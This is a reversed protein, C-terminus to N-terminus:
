FSYSVGAIITSQAKNQVLPSKSADGQLQSFSATVNANWNPSIKYDAILNLGASKVGGKPSYLKFGSAASQAASVGFYAQEYKKDAWILNPSVTLTLEKTAQWPLDFGVEIRTGGTGEFEKKSSDLKGSGLNKSLQAYFPLGLTYHGFVNLEASTSIVGMGKLRKSGPRFATGDAKDTRGFDFGLGLGLSYEEKDIPTWALGTRPDLSFKGYDASKYSAKLIPIAGNVTKKSGEYDRTSILGGGVSLSWADKVTKDASQGHAASALVVCMISTLPKLINSKSIKRSALNM